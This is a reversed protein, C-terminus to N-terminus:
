VDVLKRLNLVQTDIDKDCLSISDSLVRFEQLMSQLFEHVIMKDSFIAEDIGVSIQVKGNYSIVGCNVGLMGHAIGAMIKLDSGIYGCIEGATDPGPFNSLAATGIGGKSQSAILFRPLSGILKIGYSFILPLTSKKLQHLEEEIKNIRLISNSENLPVRVPVM